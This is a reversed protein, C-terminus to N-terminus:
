RRRLGGGVPLAGFVARPCQGNATRRASTPVGVLARNNGWKIYGRCRRAPPLTKFAPVTPTLLFPGPDPSTPDNLRGPPPVSTPRRPLSCIRLHPCTGIHFYAVLGPGGCFFRPLRLSVRRPSPRHACPIVEARILRHSPDGPAPAHDGSATGPKGGFAGAHGRTFSAISLNSVRYVFNTCTRELTTTVPSTGLWLRGSGRTRGGAVPV